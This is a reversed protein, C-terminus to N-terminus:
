RLEKEVFDNFIAKDVIAGKHQIVFGAAKSGFTIAEAISLGNVRAGLYAGNFSDGASTTDVVNKVPTIEFQECVGDLYSLVTAPGNKIILEKVNYPACFDYLDKANDINYLQEFDDVGPLAVDSVSFAKEFQEKAQEPTDWLRARYNPDFVIQVGAQQLKEVMLWFQARDENHIIALSIGSFFFMDGKALTEIAADDIFSMVDKAAANDRWYTFTREGTSDTEIAYLGPMKTESSFVLDHQIEEGDFFTRMDDSFKDKGLASLFHTNINAFTRKMYIATNLVDGAFSQKLVKSNDTQAATLEQDARLEVMCEGFVYINKM